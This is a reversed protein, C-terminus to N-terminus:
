VGRGGEEWEVSVGKSAGSEMAKAVSVDDAALLRLVDVALRVVQLQPVAAVYACDHALAVVVGVQVQLEDGGICKTVVAHLWQLLAVAAGPHKHVMSIAEHVADLVRLRSIVEALRKPPLDVVRQLQTVGHVVAVTNVAGGDGIGADIEDMAAVIEPSSIRGTAMTVGVQYRACAQEYVCVPERVCV